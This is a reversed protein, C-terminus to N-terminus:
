KISVIVKAAFYLIDISFLALFFIKGRMQIVAHRKVKQSLKTFLYSQSDKRLMRTLGRSYQTLGKHIFITIVKTVRLRKSKM